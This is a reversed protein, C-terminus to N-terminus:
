LRWAWLVQLFNQRKECWFLKRICYPSKRFLVQTRRSLQHLHNGLLDAALKLVELGLVQAIGDPSQRDELVLGILAPPLLKLPLHVLVESVETATLKGVQHPGQGDQVVARDPDQVAHEAMCNVLHGVVRGVAQVEQDPAHALQAVGGAVLPHALEHADGLGAEELERGRLHGVDDPGQRLKTLLQVGHPKVVVQHHSLPAEGGETGLQQGYKHPAGGHQVVPGAPLPQQAKLLLHALLEIVEAALLQGADGPGQALKPVRPLAVGHEVHQLALLAEQLNVKLDQTVGLEQVLHQRPPAAAAAAIAGLPAGGGLLDVPAAACCYLM